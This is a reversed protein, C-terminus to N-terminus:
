LQIKYPSKYILKNEFYNNLQKNMPQQYSLVFMDDKEYGNYQITKGNSKIKGYLIYHSYIEAKTTDGKTWEKFDFIKSELQYRVDIMFKEEFSIETIKTLIDRVREIDYPGVFIMDLDTTEWGELIGGYIYFEYGSTNVEEKVRNLIKQIIPDEIGKAKYWVNNKYPGYELIEFDINM